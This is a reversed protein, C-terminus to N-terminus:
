TRRISVNDFLATQGTFTGLSLYHSAATPTFQFSNSGIIIFTNAANLIQGGGPATGIYAYRNAGGTVSILDLLVTHPVGPILGTVLQYAYAAGTGVAVSLRGANWSLTAQATALWSTVDADFKGNVVLEPKSVGGLLIPIIRAPHV